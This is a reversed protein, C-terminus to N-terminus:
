ELDNISMRKLNRATQLLKRVGDIQEQDLGARFEYDFEPYTSNTIKEFKPFGSFSHGLLQSLLTPPLNTVKLSILQASHRFQLAKLPQHISCDPEDYAGDWFIDLQKVM